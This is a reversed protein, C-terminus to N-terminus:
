RVVRSNRFAEVPLMACRSRMPSVPIGLITEMDQPTYAAVDRLQKGRACDTFLSAAAQSIACGDGMFTMETIVGNKDRKHYVVVDDGCLANSESGKADADALVRKNRPNRYHQLIHEKYLEDEM